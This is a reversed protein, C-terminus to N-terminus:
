NLKEVSVANAKRICIRYKESPTYLDFSICEDSILKDDILRTPECHSFSISKAEDGFALDIFGRLIDLPIRFGDSFDLAELSQVLNRMQQSMAVTTNPVDVTAESSSTADDDVEEEEADDSDDDNISNIANIIVGELCDIEDSVSKKLSHKQVVSVVTSALLVGGAVAAGILGQKKTERLDNELASLRLELKKTKRM